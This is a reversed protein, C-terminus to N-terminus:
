HDDFFVFIHDAQNRQAFQQLAEAVMSVRQEVGSATHDHFLIRGHGLNVIGSIMQAAEHGLQMDSMDRDDVGLFQDANQREVIDGAAGDFVSIKFILQEFLVDLMPRFLRAHLDNLVERAMNMQDRLAPDYPTLAIGGLTETVCATEHRELNPKTM